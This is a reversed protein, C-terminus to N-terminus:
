ARRYITGGIALREAVKNHYSYTREIRRIYRAVAPTLLTGILGLAILGFGILETM